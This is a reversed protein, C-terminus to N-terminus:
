FPKWCRQLEAVITPDSDVRAVWLTEVDVPEQDDGGM